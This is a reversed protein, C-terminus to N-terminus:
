SIAISEVCGDVRNELADCGRVHIERVDAVLGHLVLLFGMEQGAGGGGCVFVM